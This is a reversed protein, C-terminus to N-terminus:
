PLLHSLSRNKCCPLLIPMLMFWLRFSLKLCSRQDVVKVTGDNMAVGVEVNKQQKMQDVAVKLRDREETVSSLQLSIIRLSYGHRTSDTYCLCM